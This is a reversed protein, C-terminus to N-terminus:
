RLAICATVPFSPRPGDITVLILYTLVLLFILIEKECSVSDAMEQQIVSYVQIEEAPLLEAEEYVVLKTCDRLLARAICLLQREAASLNPGIPMDLDTIKAPSREKNDTDQESEDSVLHVRKLVQFLEYDDYEGFPDM